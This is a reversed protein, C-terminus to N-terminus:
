TFVTSGEFQIHPEKLMVTFKLWGECSIFMIYIYMSGVHFIISKEKMVNERGFGM